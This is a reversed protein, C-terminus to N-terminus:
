NDNKVTICKIHWVTQQFLLALLIVVLIALFYCYPFLSVSHVCVCLYKRLGQKQRASNRKKDDSNYNWVLVKERLEHHMNFPSVHM